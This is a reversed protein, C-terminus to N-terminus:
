QAQRHELSKAFELRRGKIQVDWTVTDIYPLDQHKFHFASIKVDDFAYAGPLKQKEALQGLFKIASKATSYASSALRKDVLAWDTIHKLYMTENPFDFTLLNRALERLGIRNGRTQPDEM